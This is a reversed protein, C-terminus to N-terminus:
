MGVDGCLSIGEVYMCESSISEIQYNLTGYIMFGIDMVGHGYM